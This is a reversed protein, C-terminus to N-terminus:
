KSSKKKSAKSAKPLPKEIAALADLAEPAIRSLGGLLKEKLFDSFGSFFPSLADASAELSYKLLLAIQVHSLKDGFAKFFESPKPNNDSDPPFLDRLSGMIIRAVLEANKETFVTNAVVVFAAKRESTVKDIVMPSPEIIQEESGSGDVNVKKTTKITSEDFRTFLALTEAIEVSIDKLLPTISVPVCYFKLKKGCFEREIFSPSIFEFQNYKITKEAM